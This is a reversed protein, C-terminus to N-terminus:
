PATMHMSASSIISRISCNLVLNFLIASSIVLNFFQVSYFKMGIVLNDSSIGMRIHLFRSSTHRPNSFRIGNRVMMMTTLRFRIRIIGM